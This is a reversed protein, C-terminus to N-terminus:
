SGETLLEDDPLFGGRAARLLAAFRSGRDDALAERAGHEVIRGRELVAIEDVDDLTSLRHAVVIATRGELLLHTAAAVDAETGPDLRSSAEDLIVLGPAALFARAFALLQAEGSSLSRGAALLTALGSPLSQLWPGLHVQHLLAELRADDAANAGFLTLNDRLSARLIEVDQTVISIKARLAATTLERVDIGGVRVEGATPDWLRLALRGLTTKGSGTRGVVGLKTGPAVHLDVDRLAPPTDTSYAFTVGLLDLALPGPPLAETTLPGDVVTAVTALMGSARRAGAMAKHFETLQEAIRELPQRIMESYRYLSLVQGATVAGAGLLVFGLGLTAVSGTAFTMAALAYSGDGLFSARKAARWSRAANGQLRHVAYSGAGNARLDELGGLREELDGYLIANAEREAERAPVAAGRLKVLVASGLVAVALLLAGAWPDITASVVVMAVMLLANGVVHVLVNTFFLSLAEVDGDIREILQGPSHSGHWAMDLRTAHSALRERLRNGARWSVQVSGWTVALQLIEAAVAAAVYLGAATTLEGLPRRDLAADVFSGMLLPMVLRFGFSVLLVALVATGRRREPWLTAGILRAAPSGGLEM